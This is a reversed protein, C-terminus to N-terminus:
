SSLYCLCIQGSASALSFAGADTSPSDYGVRVSPCIETFPSRLGPPSSYNFHVLSFHKLTVVLPRLQISFLSPSGLALLFLTVLAMKKTYLLSTLLYISVLFLCFILILGFRLVFLSPGIIHFLIAAFYAEFPGMYGQGYFFIPFEGHYAIHLAMLGLTGEDSNTPPWGQRILIIRLVIATFIIFFACIGHKYIKLYNLLM